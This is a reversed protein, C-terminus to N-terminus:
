KRRHKFWRRSKKTIERLKEPLLKGLFNVKEQLGLTKTLALYEEKKSRRWYGFSPM